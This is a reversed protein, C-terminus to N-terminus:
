LLRNQSTELQENYGLENYIFAYFITIEELLIYNYLRALNQLHFQISDKASFNISFALSANKCQALPNNFNVGVHVNQPHHFPPLVNFSISLM